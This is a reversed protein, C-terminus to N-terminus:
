EAGEEPEPDGQAPQAAKRIREAIGALLGPTAFSCPLCLAGGQEPAPVYHEWCLAAGCKACKHQGTRSCKHSRCRAM